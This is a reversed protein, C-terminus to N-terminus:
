GGQSTWPRRVGLVRILQGLLGAAVAAGALVLYLSRVDFLGALAVPRGVAGQQGGGGSTSGPAALSPTGSSGSGATPSGLAVGAPSSVSGGGEGSGSIGGVGGTSGASGGGLDSTGAGGGASSPAPSTGTLSATAAGFTMTV